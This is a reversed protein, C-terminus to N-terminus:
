ESVQEAEADGFHDRVREAVILALSELTLYLLGAAFPCVLWAVDGSLASSVGLAAAVAVVVSVLNMSTGLAM